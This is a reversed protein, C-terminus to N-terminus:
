IIKKLIFGFVNFLPNILTEAARVALGKGVQDFELTTTFSTLLERDSIGRYSQVLKRSIRIESLHQMIWVYARLKNKWHKPEQILVFGWTVIEAILLSPIMLVITELRFLKLLMLYRNREQYFTKLPGFRLKYKHYLVSAPSFLCHFGMLQARLSLDTDEMYLFFSSDFGNLKEFLKKRIAFSAGSIAQVFFPEVFESEPRYIGHCLTLGTLHVDNGCTNILQPTDMLLIKSTVLGTTQNQKLPEVLGELWGNKVVTDPNLFVLYQGKAIRVALNNAGGFGLNNGNPILNILPYESRLWEVTHDNSANDVVIIEVNRGCASILSPLCKELDEQNNHSVLIISIEILNLTDDPYVQPEYGIRSATLRM